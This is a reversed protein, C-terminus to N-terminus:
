AAELKANRELQQRRKFEQFERFQEEDVEVTTAPAKGKGKSSSPLEPAPSSSRSTAASSSEELPTALLEPHKPLLYPPENALSSAGSNQLQMSSLSKLYEIIMHAPVGNALLRDVVSGDIIFNNNIVAPQQNDKLDKVEKLLQNGAAKIDKVDDKIEQANVDARLLSRQIGEGVKKINKTDEAIQQTAGDTRNISDVLQSGVQKIAKTDEAIQQTTKDTRFIANILSEVDKLNGILKTLIERDLELKGDTKTAHRMAAVQAIIGISALAVCIALPVGASVFAGPVVLVGAQIALGWITIFTGAITALIKHVAALHEVIFSPNVKMEIQLMEAEQLLGGGASIESFDDPSFPEQRAAEQATSILFRAELLYAYIAEEIELTLWNDKGRDRISQEILCRFESLKKLISLSRSLLNGVSSFHSKQEQIEKESLWIARKLCTIKNPNTYSEELSSLSRALSNQTSLLGRLGDRSHEFFREVVVGSDISAAM